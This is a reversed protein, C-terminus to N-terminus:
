FSYGAALVLAQPGFRIHTTRILGGTEATLTTDVRTISYSAYVGWHPAIRYSLGLTGSPGVSSPLELKTPGGTAANGAATSDRDYFATYNVGVGIYPRLAANEDFFVYNLLLTPAFWRATSIIQGNYPVSGLTAPGVGETKTLPPLGLALELAFHTSLRRVYAAYPTVLDDAKLNVGSPVFPGTIDNATTHYFVAYIGLRLTNGYAADDGGAASADPADAAKADSPCTLTVAIGVLAALLARFMSTTM